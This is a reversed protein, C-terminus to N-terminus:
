VLGLPDIEKAHGIATLICWSHRDARLPVKPPFCHSPCSHVSETLPAVTSPESTRGVLQPQYNIGNNVPNWVHWTSTPSKKWWSYEVMEVSGSVRFFSILWRGVMCKWNRVTLKLTPLYHIKNASTSHEDQKSSLGTFPIWRRYLTKTPPWELIM